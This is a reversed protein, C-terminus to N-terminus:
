EILLLYKKFICLEHFFGQVEKLFLCTSLFKIDFGCQKFCHSVPLNNNKNHTIIAIATEVLYFFGKGINYDTSLFPIHCFKM